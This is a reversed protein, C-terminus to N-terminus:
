KPCDPMRNVYIDGACKAFAQSCSSPGSHGSHEGFGDGTCSEKIEDVVSDALEWAAIFIDPVEDIGRKKNFTTSRKSCADVDDPECTRCYASVLAKQSTTLKENDSYYAYECARRDAGDCNQPILCAAEARRLAASNITADNFACWKDFGATGCMLDDPNGCSEFYARTTECVTKPKEPAATGSDSEERPEASAPTDSTAPKTESTDPPAIEPVTKGTCALIAVAFLSASLSARPQRM